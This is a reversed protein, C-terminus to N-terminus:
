FSHAGHGGLSMVYQVMVARGADPFSGLNRQRTWQLRVASFHSRKWALMLETERLRGGHFHDGHPERVKLEGHRVGADWQPAFRYVASVYWGEHFDDDTAFRSPENVRLYEASLRLQRSRNNGNPAWKWVADAIWLHRGNFRAGHAHDHAGEEDHDHEGASEAPDLRNRLYSLGAQWSHEIGIDAGARASLAFAGVTPGREASGILKGGHLLEVGLRLYMPTPAVWNLRVGDDFYHGGLLARYALPRDVFDDTHVHQENLYGVQSLFRGARLSLGQPLARTEIFAEELEVEISGDHDHLAATARGAFLDDINGGVTAETHGLGFGRARGGLALDRSAYGGDLILGYDIGPASAASPSGGAASQASAPVPLLAPLSLAALSLAALARPLGRLSPRGARVAPARKGDTRM